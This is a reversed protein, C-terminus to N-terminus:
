KGFRRQRQQYDRIAKDLESENFDPMLIDTFYLEAYEIQWLLFGSLRKEGGTRIVLDPDPVDPADLYKHFNKSISSASEEQLKSHPQDNLMKKFARCIEDRGGYNLAFIVQLNTNNKTKTTWAELGQRIDTPFRSLDGIIRIRVNKKHMESANFELMDRFLQMVGKVELDSRHWNETSFAWFTVYPIQLKILHNVLKELMEKAVKQHGMLINLGQQRAWRRNGDMIIAIHELKKNKIM